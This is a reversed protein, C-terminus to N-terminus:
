FEENTLVEKKAYNSYEQNESFDSELDDLINLTKSAEEDTLYQLYNIIFSSLRKIGFWFNNKTILLVKEIGKESYKIEKIGSIEVNLNEHDCYFQIFEPDHRVFGIETNQRVYHASKSVM